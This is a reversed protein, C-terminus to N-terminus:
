NKLLMVTAIQSASELTPANLHAISQCAHPMVSHREIRSAVVFPRNPTLM